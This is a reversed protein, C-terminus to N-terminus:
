ASKIQCAQGFHGALATNIDDLCEETVAHGAGEYLIMKGGLAASIRESHASSIIKDGTGAIVLVPFKGKLESLRGASARHTLVATFQQAFQYLANEKAILGTFREQFMHVYFDLVTPFDKHIISLNEKKGPKQLHQESFVTEFLAQTAQKQEESTRQQLAEAYGSALSALM